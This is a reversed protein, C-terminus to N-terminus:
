DIVCVCVNVFIYYEWMCTSAGVRIVCVVFKCVCVCVLWACCGVCVSAYVRRVNGCCACVSIVCVM